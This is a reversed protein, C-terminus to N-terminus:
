HVAKRQKWKLSSSKCFKVTNVSGSYIYWVMERVKKSGVRARKTNKAQAKQEIEDLQKNNLDVYYIKILFFSFIQSKEMKFYFRWIDFTWWLVVFNALAFQFSFFLFCRFLFVKWAQLYHVCSIGVARVPEHKFPIGHKALNAEFMALFYWSRQNCFMSFLYYLLSTDAEFNCYTPNSESVWNLKSKAIIM